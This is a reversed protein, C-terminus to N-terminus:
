LGYAKLDHWNHGYEVEVRFPVDWGPMDEMASKLIPVETEMKEEPVSIVLEDHVMMLLQGYGTEDYRIMAEKAQDAASGQILHNCLRYNFDRWVGDVICAEEAPIVRGGWTRVDPLGKFQSIFDQLGEIAKFYAQKIGWAEEPTTPYGAQTLQAALKDIGSGYIMSFGVIKVIKRTLTLQGVCERILSYAVQHFDAAPDDQYIELAKGEAYHAMIRMEQGNFDAPVIVEGEDPLIYQRMFPLDMDHLVDTENEGFETPVNTLNPDSCSFRGTRTGSEGSKVQNWSPHVRGDAASYEIWGKFFTQTLTRLTSWYRIAKRLEPETVNEEIAAKATSLRGTPTRPLNPAYGRDTLAAAVQVPKTIDIDGLFHEIVARQQDKIHEYKAYDAVLRERDVRVGVREMWYGIRALTLEREYAADMKKETIKPRLLRHLGLTRSTDGKAYPAVISYPAYGIYAGFNAQTIIKHEPLFPGRFNEKLWRFVAQQEDPPEGLLKEALQKLGLSKALPDVLYTQFMTDEYHEPWKLGMHELAVGIDFKCNHFLLPKDWSAALARRGDEWTHPNRGPHGWGYYVNPKGPVLISVGVPAPKKGSGEIIPKTEFDVVIPDIM